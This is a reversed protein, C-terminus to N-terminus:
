YGGIIVSCILGTAVAALVYNDDATAIFLENIISHKDAFSDDLIEPM